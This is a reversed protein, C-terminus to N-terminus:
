LQRDLWEQTSENMLHDMNFVSKWARALRVRLCPRELRARTLWMQWALRTTSSLYAGSEDKTCCLERETAAREFLSIETM